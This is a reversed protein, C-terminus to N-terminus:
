PIFCALSIAAAPAAIMAEADGNSTPTGAAEAATTAEPVVVRLLPQENEHVRASSRSEPPAYTSTCRTLSAHLMPTSATISPGLPLGTEVPPSIWLALCSETVPSM